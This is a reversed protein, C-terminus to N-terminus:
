KKMFKEQQASAIKDINKIDIVDDPLYDSSSKENKLKEALCYIHNNIFILNVKCPTSTKNLLKINVIHSYQQLISKISAAFKRDNTSHYFYKLLTITNICKIIFSSKNKGKKIKEFFPAFESINNDFLKNIFSPDDILNNCLDIFNVADEFKVFDYQINQYLIVKDFKALKKLNPNGDDIIAVPNPYNILFLNSDEYVSYNLFLGDLKDKIITKINSIGKLYAIKLKASNKGSLQFKLKLNYSNPYATIQVGTSTPFSMGTFDERVLTTDKFLKKFFEIQQDFDCFIKLKSKILHRWKIFKTLSLFNSSPQLVTNINRPNIKLRLFNKYYDGAFLYSVFDNNKYFLPNNELFIVGANGYRNSTKANNSLIENATYNNQTKKLINKLDFITKERHNIKFNGDNYFIGLFESNGSIIKSKSIKPIDKGADVIAANHLDLGFIQQFDLFRNAILKNGIYRNSQLYHIDINFQEHAPNGVLLDSIIINEILPIIEIPLDLWNGIRIFPRSDDTSDGTFIIFCEPDVIFIRDAEKKIIDSIEM